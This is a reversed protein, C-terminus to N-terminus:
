TNPAEQATRCMKKAWRKSWSKSPWGGKCLNVQYCGAEAAGQREQKQPIRPNRLTPCKPFRSVSGHAMLFYSFTLVCSPWRQSIPLLLYEEREDRLHFIGLYVAKCLIGAPSLGTPVLPSWGLCKSHIPRREKRTWEEGPGTRPGGLGGNRNGAM